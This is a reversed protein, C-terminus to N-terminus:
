VVGFYILVALMIGESITFGAILQAPTHKKLAYRSWFVVPLIAYLYMYQWDTVVNLLTIGVTNFTMHLSIKWYFTIIYAATFAAVVSLGIHFLFANGFLAITVLSVINKIFIVTLIGYREERKTIDFDSIEGKKVAHIMYVLPVVIHLFPFIFAFLKIQSSSLGTEFILIWVILVVWPIGFIFSVLQALKKM